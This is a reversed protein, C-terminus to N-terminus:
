KQPVVERIGAGLGYRSRMAPGAARREAAPFDAEAADVAARLADWALNAEYLRDSPTEVELRDIAMRYAAIRLRLSRWVWDVVRANEDIRAYADHLERTSLDRRGDAAALRLRDDERVRRAEDWFPGVLGADSRMDMIARNWRTESSRVSDRRLWGYYGAPDFKADLEPLIRTRQGEVLSNGFWDAVHPARVLQWARDRLVGERDTRNFGSVLEERGRAAVDGVTPTIRDDWINRRARGLDGTERGCGALALPLLLVAALPASPRM